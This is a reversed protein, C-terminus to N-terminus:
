NSHLCVAKKHRPFHKVSADNSLASIGKQNIYDHMSGKQRALQKIPGWDAYSLHNSRWGLM